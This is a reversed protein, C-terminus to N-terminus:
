RQGRRDQLFKMGQRADQDDPSFCLIANFAQLAAQKRGGLAGSWGVMRLVEVDLPFQRAVQQYQELAEPYKRQLYLAYGLRTRSTYNTADRRLTDRCATELRAWDQLMLYQYQQYLLPEVAAPRLSAARAYLAAADGYKGLLGHLYGLRMAAYYNSSEPPIGANIIAIAEALKGRAEAAYSERFVPGLVAESDEAGVPAVAGALLFFLAAVTLLRAM